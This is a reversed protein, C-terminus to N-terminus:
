LVSVSLSDLARFNLGYQGEATRILLGMNQLKNLDRRATRESVERYLVSLPNVEFLDRLVIPGPDRELLM